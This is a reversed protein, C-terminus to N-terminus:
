LQPASPLGLAGLSSAVARACAGAAELAAGSPAGELPHVSVQGPAVRICPPRSNYSGFALTQDSLALSVM